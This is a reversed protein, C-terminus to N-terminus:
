AIIYYEVCKRDNYKRGTELVERALARTAGQSILAPSKVIVNEEIKTESGYKTTVGVTLNVKGGM